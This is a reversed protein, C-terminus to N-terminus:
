LLFNSSFIIWTRKRKRDPESEDDSSLMSQNIQCESYYQNVQDVYEEQEKIESKM